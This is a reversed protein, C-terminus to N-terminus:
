VPGRMKVVLVIALALLLLGLWVLLPGSRDIVLKAYGWRPAPNSPQQRRRRKGAARVSKLDIGFQQLASCAGNPFRLLGRLLHDCDLWYQWDRNAEKVAYALTM